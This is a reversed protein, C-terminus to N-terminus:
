GLASAARDWVHVPFENVTGFHAHQVKNPEVGESRAITAALKGFRALSMSDTPLGHTKAYGLASFWDHRGEIADIRANAVRADQGAEVAAAAIERVEDRMKRMEVAAAIILDLESEARPAQVLQGRRLKPLVERYVWSQFREVAARVDANGIRATQRQGLARYFGAETLYGVRQEGGPTRVIEYGKEAEPISRLLDTAARFGLAQAVGPARVRFGDTEHESLSLDFEGNSFPVMESM